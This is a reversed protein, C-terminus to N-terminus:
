AVYEPSRHLSVLWRRRSMHAKNCFQVENTRPLSRTFVCNFLVLGFPDFPDFPAIPSCHPGYLSGLPVLSPGSLSLPSPLSGPQYVCTFIRSKFLTVGDQQAPAHRQWNIFSRSVLCSWRLVHPICERLRDDRILRATQGHQGHQGHEKQCFTTGSDGDSNEEM